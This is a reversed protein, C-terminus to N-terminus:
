WYKTIVGEKGSISQKTGMSSGGASGLHPRKNREQKKTSDWDMFICLLFIQIKEQMLIQQFKFIGIEKMEQVFNTKVEM